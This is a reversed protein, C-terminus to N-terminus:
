HSRLLLEAFDVLGGRDCAEEYHRYIRILTDGVYDGSEQLYGSRKGEDKQSNIFWQAQRPAFRSEDLDLSKLVRKITRLQDDSDLIQFNQPLGAEQWHLKLLRHALGHFTGVWLQRVSSSMELASELRHQME